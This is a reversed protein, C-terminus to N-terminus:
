RLSLDYFLCAIRKFLGHRIYIYGKFYSNKMNIVNKFHIALLNLIVFIAM